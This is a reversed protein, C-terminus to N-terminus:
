QNHAKGRLSVAAMRGGRGCKADIQRRIKWKANLRSSGGGSSARLEGRYNLTFKMIQFPAAFNYAACAALNDIGSMKLRSM